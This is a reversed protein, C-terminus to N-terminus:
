RFVKPATVCGVRITMGELGSLDDQIRVTFKDDHVLLYPAGEAIFSYEVYLYNDGNGVTDYTHAAAYAAWDANSKISVEQNFPTFIGKRTVGINVGNPLVDGAAFGEAAFNGFDRVTITLKNLLLVFDSKPTIHYDVPVSSGDVAMEILGSGDGVTDLFNSALIAIDTYQKYPM